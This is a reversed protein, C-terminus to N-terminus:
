AVRKRDLFTQIGVPTGNAFYSEFQAAEAEYSQPLQTSQESCQKSRSPPLEDQCLATARHFLNWDTIEDILGLEYAENSDITRCSRLLEEAAKVGIHRQLRQTGGWGPCISLRSEPMAFLAEPTAVRYDCSMALELGGGMCPGNIAAITNKPSQEIKDLISQGWRSFQYAEGPALQSMEDIDAGASFTGYSSPYNDALGIDRAIWYAIKRIRSVKKGIPAYPAPFFVISKVNSKGNLRDMETEVEKMVARSLANHKEPRNIAIVAIDKLPFSYYVGDIPCLLDPNLARIHGYRQGIM